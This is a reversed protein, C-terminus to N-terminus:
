VPFVVVFGRAGIADPIFKQPNEAIILVDGTGKGIIEGQNIVLM